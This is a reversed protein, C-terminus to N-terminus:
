VSTQTQALAKRTDRSGSGTEGVGDTNRCFSVAESVSVSWSSGWGRCVGLRGDRVGVCGCEGSVPLWLADTQEQCGSDNQAYPAYAM